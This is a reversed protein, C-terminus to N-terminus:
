TGSEVRNRGSNKAKYLAKDAAQFFKEKLDHSPVLSSVGISVTAPIRTLAGSELEIRKRIKEATSVAAQLGTEPLLVCIEEGGFRAAADNQRISTDIIKAVIKLVKDGADHGHTDNVKKFHDIDIILLSLSRGYRNARNFESVFSRDFYRRNYLGTLADRYALALLKNEKKSVIKKIGYLKNILEEDNYDRIIKALEGELEMTPSLFFPLASDKDDVVKFQLSYVGLQISDGDNLETEGVKHKNVFTGNTSKRDEIVFKDNKWAIVSHVRSVSDHPLFVTNDKNRGVSYEEKEKLELLRDLYFLYYRNDPM